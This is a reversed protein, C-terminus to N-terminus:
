CCCNACYYRREIDEIITDKLRLAAAHKANEAEEISISAGFPGEEATVDGSSDRVSSFVTQLGFLSVLSAFVIASGAAHLLDREWSEYEAGRFFLALFQTWLVIMVLSALLLPLAVVTFIQFAAVFGKHRYNEPIMYCFGPILGRVQQVISHAVLVLSTGYSIRDIMGSIQQGRLLGAIMVLGDESVNRALSFLGSLLFHDVRGPVGERTRVGAGYLHGFQQDTVYAHGRYLTIAEFTLNWIGFALAISLWGVIDSGENRFENLLIVDTLTDWLDIAFVVTLKAMACRVSLYRYLEFPITVIYVLILNWFDACSKSREDRIAAQKLADSVLEWAIVISPVSSCYRNCTSEQVTGGRAILMSDVRKLKLKLLTGKKRRDEASNLESPPTKLTSTSGTKKSDLAMHKINKKLVKTKKLVKNRAGRDDYPMNKSDSTSMESTAPVNQGKELGM